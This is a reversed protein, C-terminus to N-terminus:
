ALTFSITLYVGEKEPNVNVIGEWAKKLLNAKRICDEQNTFGYPKYTSFRISERGSCLKELWSASIHITDGQKFYKKWATPALKVLKRALTELEEKIQNEVQKRKNLLEHLNDNNTAM